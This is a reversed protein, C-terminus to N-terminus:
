FQNVRSLLIYVFFYKHVTCPKTKLNKSQLAEFISLLPCPTVGRGLGFPWSGDRNMSEGM